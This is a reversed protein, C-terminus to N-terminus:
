KLLIMKRSQVTEGATLKYLYVGSAVARGSKDRGDWELHYTGASLERDILTRVEEGLINYIALQVGSKEPLEFQIQTGANFPNPYNQSLTFGSTLTPEYDYEVLLPGTGGAYIFVYGQGLNGYASFAFDDIGDGNFDGIGTCSMGFEYQILPVDLNHIRVDWLSDADPGGLFIQVEGAGSVAVPNGRILDQYGDNNVDGASAVVDVQGLIAMDPLTDLDPGGYYIFATSDDSAHAGAYLDDYGDGNYDLCAMRDGWYYQHSAFVGPRTIILDPITDFTSGGFYFYVQGNLSDFPRPRLNVALDIKSDGNFDGSIFQEAFNFGPNVYGAPPTLRDYPNSDPQPQLAFLLFSQNDDCNFIVEGFGNGDIDHGWVGKGRPRYTDNGFWLDHIGDNSPGGWYAMARWYGGAGTGVSFDAFGDGNLDGLNSLYFYVSDGIVLDPVTDLEAGGLFVKARYVVPLPSDRWDYVLIDDYGDGNQDGLPIVEWGLKTNPEGELIGILNPLQALAPRSLITVCYLAIWLFFRKPRSKSVDRFRL